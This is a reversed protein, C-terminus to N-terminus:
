QRPSRERDEPREDYRLPNNAARDMDAQEKVLEPTLAEQKKADSWHGLCRVADRFCSRAYVAQERDLNGNVLDQMHSQSIRQANEIVRGISGSDLLHAQMAMNSIEPGAEHGNDRLNELQLDVLDRRQDLEFEKLNNCINYDIVEYDLASRSASNEMNRVYRRKERDSLESVRVALARHVDRGEARTFPSGLTNRMFDNRMPAPMAVILQIKKTKDPGSILNDTLNRVDDRETETLVSRHKNLYHLCEVACFSPDSHWPQEDDVNEVVQSKANDIGASVIIRQKPEDFCDLHELLHSLAESRGTESSPIALVNDSISGSLSSARSLSASVKDMHKAFYSLSRTRGEGDESISSIVHNQDEEELLNMRPAWADLLERQYPTVPSDYSASMLLQHDKPRLLDAQGILDVLMQHTSTNDEDFEIREKHCEYVSQVIQSRRERDFCRINSTISQFVRDPFEDGKRSMADKLIRIRKFDNPIPITDANRELNITDLDRFSGQRNEYQFECIRPMNSEITSGVHKM